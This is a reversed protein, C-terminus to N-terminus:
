MSRQFTKELMCAFDNEHPRVVDIRGVSRPLFHQIDKWKGPFALFRSLQKSKWQRLKKKHSTRIELSLEKRSQPDQTRRRRSRSCKLQHSPVFCLRHRMSCGHRSAATTLIKELSDASCIPNLILLRRICHQYVTPNDHQDLTPRWGKFNSRRRLQIGKGVMIKLTCHVSRHDLGIPFSFDCSTAVCHFHPSSLIFDLQVLAGDMSRRCTWSGRLHDMGRMRSQVLLGNQLIWRAFMRGRDNRDGLGCTGLFEVDDGDLPSGLVANFDGGLISVNGNDACCSLLLGLLELFQEVDLDPEWSTPMYCSFIQFRITGLKFHLTCVRDSYSSFLIGNMKDLLKRAVCIGVGRKGPSGGSLFVKHGGTTTFHEEKEGRWTESLLLLDFEFTDLEVMFDEFREKGQISQLNKSVVHLQVFEEHDADNMASILPGRVISGACQRSGHQGM